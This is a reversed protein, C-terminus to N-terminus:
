PSKRKGPKEAPPTGRATGTKTVRIWGEEDSVQIEEEFQSDRQPSAAEAVRDEEEQGETPQGGRHDGQMHRPPDKDARARLAQNEGGARKSILIIRSKAKVGYEDMTREDEMKWGAFFLIQDEPEVEMKDKVMKKLEKVTTRKSVIITAPKGGTGHQVQIEM